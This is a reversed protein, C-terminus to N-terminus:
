DAYTFPLIKENAEFMEGFFLQLFDSPPALLGRLRFNRSSARRSVSFFAVRARLSSLGSDSPQDARGRWYPFSDLRNPTRHHVLSLRGPTRGSFASRAARHVPRM